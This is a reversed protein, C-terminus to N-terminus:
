HKIYNGIIKIIESPYGKFIFEFNKIAKQKKEINKQNYLIYDDYLKKEWIYDFEGELNLAYNIGKLIAKLGNILRNYNPFEDFNINKIYSMMKEIENPMGKCLEYSSIKYKMEKVKKAREKEEKAKIDQWPLKGKYFYILTYMLSELDDKRSQRVGLHSNLSSFKQTGVFKIGIINKYLTGDELDLYPCSLGFDILFITNLDIGSHILKKDQTNNHNTFNGWTFNNPKVDRHILGLKHMSQLRNILQLGLLCITKLPFKKGCYIFLKDLNPGLLSEVIINKGNIIYTNLPKPFGKENQLMKIYKIEKDIFNQNYKRDKPIKIAVKKNSNKHKGFFVKGFSGEDILYKEDYIYEGCTIQMKSIDNKNITNLSNSKHNAREKEINNIQNNNKQLNDGNKINKNIIYKECNEKNDENKIVKEFKKEDKIIKNNLSNAVMDNSSENIRKKGLLEVEHQHVINNTNYKFTDIPLTDSISTENKITLNLDVEKLNLM